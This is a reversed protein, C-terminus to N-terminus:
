GAAARVRDQLDRYKSPGIGPVEQLQEVTAFGGVEDRYAVIRAALVPGVGPLEQLQEASAANLDLAAAGDPGGASVQPSRIAPARLDVLEGDALIRALNVGDGPQGGDLGGSAAIADVVRSGIPLVVVGPSRVPGVVHVAITDPPGPDADPGAPSPSELGAVPDGAQVTDVAVIPDPATSWRWVAILGAGLVLMVLIAALSRREASPIRLM